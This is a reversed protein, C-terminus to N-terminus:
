TDKRRIRAFHLCKIVCYNKKKEGVKEFLKNLRSILSQEVSFTDDHLMFHFHHFFYLVVKQRLKGQQKKKGAGDDM